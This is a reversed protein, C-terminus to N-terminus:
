CLNMVSWDNSDFFNKCEIFINHHHLTEENDESISTITSFLWSIQNCVNLSKIKISKSYLSYIKDFLSIKVSRMPVGYNNIGYSKWESNNAIFLFDFYTLQQKKKEKEDPIITTLQTYLEKDITENMFIYMVWTSILHDNISMARQCM